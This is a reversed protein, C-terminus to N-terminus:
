LAQCFALGVAVLIVSPLLSAVSHLQRREILGIAIALVFLILSTTILIERSGFLPFLFLGLILTGFVSGLTSVAYITGSSNGVSDLQSTSLKIAFPSVMGLMM